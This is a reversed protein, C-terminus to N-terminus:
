GRQDRKARKEIEGYKATADTEKQGEPQDAADARYAGGIAIEDNWTDGQDEGIEKDAFAQCDGFHDPQAEHDQAHHQHLYWSYRRGKHTDRTKGDMRRCM